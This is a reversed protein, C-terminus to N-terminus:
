DAAAQAEAARKAYGRKQAESMRARQEPTRKTGVQSESLHKCHEKTRQKGTNGHPIGAVRRAISAKRHGERMHEKHEPTKEVGATPFPIGAVARDAMWKRRAVSLNKCHEPTKKISKLAHPIGAARRAANSSKQAESMHARSAATLKKRVKPGGPRTYNSAARRRKIGYSPVGGESLNLLEAGLSWMYRIWLREAAEWADGEIGSQLIVVIPKLGLSVLKMAWHAVPLHAKCSCHQSIREELRQTTKGVYRTRGTRPDVLAYILTTKM